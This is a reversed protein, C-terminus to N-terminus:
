EIINNLYKIMEKAELTEEELSQADEIEKFLNNYKEKDILKGDLYYKGKQSSEDEFVVSLTSPENLRDGNIQYIETYSENISGLTCSITNKKPVYEYGVRNSIGYGLLHLNDLNTIKSNKIKNDTPEGEENKIICLENNLSTIISTDYGTYDVILEPLDDENIYALKYKYSVDQGKNLLEISNIISIYSSILNKTEDNVNSDNTINEASSNSDVSNNIENVTNIDSNTNNLETGNQVQTNKLKNNELILFVLGMALVLIIFVLVITSLKIKAPEKEEMNEGEKKQLIDYFFLIMYVIIKCYTKFFNLYFNVHKKTELNQLMNLQQKM